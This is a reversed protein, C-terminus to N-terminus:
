IISFLINKSMKNKKAKNKNKQKCLKKQTKM